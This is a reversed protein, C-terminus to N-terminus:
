GGGAFATAASGAAQMLYEWPSKKQTSDTYGGLLGGLGGAYGSAARVPTQSADLMALMPAIRLVDASALGPAQGAATAMRSRENDYNGMRMTASNRGVNRSIIDAYSSGGTLGKAGLAAQSQNRIDNNSNNLVEDFWPNAGLYKGALVDVNYGRAANVGADGAKYKDIMDPLLDVVSNTADQIQGSNQGYADNLANAGQTIYPKAFKSPEVTSKSKKSM